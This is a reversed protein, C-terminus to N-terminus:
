DHILGRKRLEYEIIRYDGHNEVTLYVGSADGRISSMIFSTETVGIDEIIKDVLFGIESQFIKTIFGITKDSVEGKIREVLKSFLSINYDIYDIETAEYYITDTIYHKMCELIEGRAMRLNQESLKRGIKLAERTVNYTETVVSGM